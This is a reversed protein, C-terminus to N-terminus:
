FLRNWDWAPGIDFKDKRFNQHSAVGSFTKFFPLDIIARRNAAPIKKPIGFQECLLTVLKVVSQVQAEPFAAFYDFGRYSSKVYRDTQSLTCYKVGYNNPWCNLQNPNNADIKLPGLNVVEIPVSRRDHRGNEFNGGELGLHYAWCKPDFLEYITGDTEVLYPTAVRAASNTWENFAGQANSGATFHLLVLNKDAPEAIFQGAPLRFKKRNIELPGAPALPPPIPTDVHDMGDTTMTPIKLGQGIKVKNPDAIGNVEILLSLPVGFKKAVKVL